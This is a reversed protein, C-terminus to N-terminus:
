LLASLAVKYCAPATRTLEQRGLLSDRTRAGDGARRYLGDRRLGIMPRRPCGPLSVALLPATRRHTLTRAAIGQRSKPRGLSRHATILLQVPRAGRVIGKRAGPLLDQSQNLGVRLPLVCLEQVLDSVLSRLASDGKGNLREHM